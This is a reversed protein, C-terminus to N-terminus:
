GIKGKSARIENILMRWQDITVTYYLDCDIMIENGSQLANIFDAPGKNQRYERRELWTTVADPKDELVAADIVSYPMSDFMDAVKPSWCYNFYGIPFIAKVYTGYGDAMGVNGTCFVSESRYRVGFNQEFFQDALKHVVVPSDKPQRDKRVRVAKMSDTLDFISMGRLLPQTMGGMELFPKCDTLLTSTVQRLDLAAETLKGSDWFAKGDGTQMTSRMIDNGLEQAFKYMATAIGKRQHEDNVVLDIAELRNNTVKFNVWGVIISGLRAEVRFQDSVRAKKGPIYPMEGPTAVLEYVGYEKTQEFGRAFVKPNITETFETARM